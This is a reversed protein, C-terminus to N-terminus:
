FKPFDFGIAITQNGILFNTQNNKIKQFLKKRSIDSEFNSRNILSVKSQPFLNKIENAVSETGFGVNKLKYSKCNPCNTLSSIKYNCHLCRYDDKTHVLSTQCRPCKLSQKCSECFGSPKKRSLPSFGFM